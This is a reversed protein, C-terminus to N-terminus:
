VIIKNNQISGGSFFKKTTNYQPSIVRPQIKNKFSYQADNWILKKEATCDYYSNQLMYVIKRAHSVSRSIYKTKKEM